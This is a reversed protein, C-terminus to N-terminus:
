SGHRRMPREAPGGDETAGSGTTILIAELKTSRRWRRASFEFAHAVIWGLWSGVLLVLVILGRVSIRLYRRWPHSVHGASM